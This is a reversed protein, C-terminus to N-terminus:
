GLATEDEVKGPMLRPGIETLLAAAFMVAAGLWQRPELHDKVGPILGSAALLGAWVPELSFIIGAETAGLHAQYRGQIWFAFATAFLGLFALAIWVGPAGLGAGGNFGMERPLLPLLALSLVAVVGVQVFSLVFPDSRRTFRGMLVIHLGVLIANLLTETDGRNWGGFPEGPKFVLGLLGLLAVVAAAGHIPRLRDGFALAVAPTFIVYLGTIFANKTTTTFRLGDTQLWFLALLVLGGVLGDRVSQRDFRKGLALCLGLLTLAGVSFRLILLAGVGVGALQLYKTAPFTCGWIAAAFGVAFVAFLHKSQTGM